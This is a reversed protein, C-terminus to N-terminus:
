KKLLSVVGINVLYELWFAVIFVLLLPFFLNFPFYVIFAFFASIASASLYRARLLAGKKTLVHSETHQLSVRIALVLCYITATSFLSVLLIQVFIKM